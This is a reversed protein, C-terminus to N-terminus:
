ANANVRARAQTITQIHAVIGLRAYVRLYVERPLAKNLSALNYTPWECLVIERQVPGLTSAALRQRVCRALCVSCRAETRVHTRKAPVRRAWWCCSFGACSRRTSSTPGYTEAFAAFPLARVSRIM